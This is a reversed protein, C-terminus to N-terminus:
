YQRTPNSGQAGGQVLELLLQDDLCGAAFTARQLTSAFFDDVQQDFRPRLQFRQSPAIISSGLMGLFARLVGMAGCRRCQSVKESAVSRVQELIALFGGQHKTTRLSSNM